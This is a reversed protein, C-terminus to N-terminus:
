LCTLDKGYVHHGNDMYFLIEYKAFRTVLKDWSKPQEPNYMLLHKYGLESMAQEIEDLVEKMRIVISKSWKTIGIHLFVVENYPEVEFAFADDKYWLLRENSM